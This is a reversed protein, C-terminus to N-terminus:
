TMFAVGLKKMLCEIPSLYNFKRIPRNNIKTEINQIQERSIQNLDTGKPLFARILGIRNEVTGKDQSTYPRTFFTPINFKDRIKYHNAFAMDNDFTISKFFSAGIRQIRKAIKQEIIDANKGDLKEITTVLTARDVLVLLASKHNKGMMLDVEIDGIRQRKEVVPPRQDIPVRERIIGRTHRYNGRKRKRKGHRLNKYLERDRRYRWHSSKKATFIWNYLTEHCVGEKGQKKWTVSILEPSLKDVVLFKRAEEKLSETFKIRKRKLRHREDTRNQAVAAKYEGSYRGRKGTNRQLERSVTSKNVGIIAAIKTQSTGNRFLAEIQYRQEQSLHKFKNM